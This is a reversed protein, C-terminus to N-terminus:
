VEEDERPHEIEDRYGDDVNSRPCGLRLRSQRQRSPLRIPGASQPRSYWLALVFICVWGLIFLTAFAIGLRDLRIRSLVDPYQPSPPQYTHKPPPRQPKAAM